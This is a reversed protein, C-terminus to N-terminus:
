ILKNLWYKGVTMLTVFDTRLGGPMRAANQDIRVVFMGLVSLLVGLLKQEVLAYRGDKLRPKAM